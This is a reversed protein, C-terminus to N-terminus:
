TRRPRRRTATSLRAPPPTARGTVQDLTLAGLRTLFQREIDDFLRAFAPLVGSRFSSGPDNARLRVTLPNAEGLAEYIRRFDIQEVPLALTVGGTSGRLSSLLGAKVMSSVIQRVRAPHEKIARAIADTTVQHPRHRAVFAMIYAASVLKTSQAMRSRHMHHILLSMCAYPYTTYKDCGM